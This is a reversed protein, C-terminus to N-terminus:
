LPWQEQRGPLFSQKRWPQAEPSRLGSTSNTSFQSTPASSDFGAKRAAALNADDAANQAQLEQAVADTAETAAEEAATPADASLVEALRTNAEDLYSAM